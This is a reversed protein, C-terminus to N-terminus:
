TCRVYQMSGLQKVLGDLELITLTSTVINPALETDRILDDIHRPERSLLGLVIREEESEPERLVSADPLPVTHINLHELIDSVETVPHAGDRILKNVGAGSNSFISSPVAYVERGQVLASNATILAGSKLPAETVLIGLSLGAIIHNRAPFNGAEPKIGLPFSSLIVGRGSDIIHKALHYNSPPYITDLGCALVAITRGGNDLATNHAVTDVGLALGSVITIKGKVLEKTFHETVQRGYSSMKRTGVIGISYHLDDETLQGCAYLVPPAYDIKRLLPPYCADKWTIVQIRLRDLRELEHDPDISARQRIFSDVTRQDLGIRTLESSPAYWARAVDEQFHDLLLQFRVPGIGMVRSFAIWYSLEELTLKDSPYYRARGDFVEMRRQKKGM